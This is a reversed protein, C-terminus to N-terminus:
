EESYQQTSIYSCRYHLRETEALIQEFNASRSFYLAFYTGFTSCSLMNSTQM